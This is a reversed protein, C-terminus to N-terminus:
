IADGPQPLFGLWRQMQQEAWQSGITRAVDLMWCQAAARWSLETSSGGDAGAEALQRRQWAGGSLAAQQQLQDQRWLQEFASLPLRGEWGEVAGAALQEPLPGAGLPQQQRVEEEEVEWPDSSVPYCRRGPSCALEPRGRSQAQQQEAAAQRQAQWLAKRPRAELGRLLLQQQGQQQATLTAHHEIKLTTARLGFRDLQM